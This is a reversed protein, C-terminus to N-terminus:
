PRHAVEPLKATAEASGVTRRGLGRQALVADVAAIAAERAVEFPVATTGSAAELKRTRRVDLWHTLLTTATMVLAGGLPALWMLTENTITM